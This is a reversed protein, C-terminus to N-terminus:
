DISSLASCDYVQAVDVYCNTSYHTSNLDLPVFDECLIVYIIYYLCEAM